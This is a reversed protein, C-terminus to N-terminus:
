NLPPTPAPAVPVPIAPAPAPTTAESIQNATSSDIMYIIALAYFYMNIMYLLDAIDGNWYQGVADRYQFTFDAVILLVLSIIFLGLYNRLKGGSVRLLTYVLTITLADLGPITVTVIKGFLSEVGGINPIIFYHYVLASSIVTIVLAEIILRGTILPRYVKLLIWSGIYLLIPFAIFLYEGISPYPVEINHILNNYLWYMLGLGNLLAGWSLWAVSRSLTTKREKGLYVALFGMIAIFISTSGYLNIWFNAQTDHAPLTYLYIDQFVQSLLLLTFFAVLVKTSFIKKM